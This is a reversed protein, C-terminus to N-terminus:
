RWMPWALAASSFWYKASMYLTRRGALPCQVSHMGTHMQTTMVDPAAVCM